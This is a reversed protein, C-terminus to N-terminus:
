LLKELAHVLRDVDQADNYPGISVRLLRSGNWEYVPVEVKFEEYLRRMLEPADGAPLEFARMFPAAVGAVRRLGVAVLRREVEDALERASDLAFTAHVDIAKPLALYASLDLTGAWGHLEAFDAGDHYGWSIVLPAIWTQHEPRAWLFGSGKPASLWKHCDGAYVDAGLASLDLKLQGPAHAGDVISLVGASRAAACIEEVPLVLATPSTIHSVFVARTRPGIRASLEEPPCLVLNAGAFSWTNVIAGYEHATTLVEGDPRSGLSRIVANLGSTANRVFVLDDTRAGVFGALAARAATLLGPGEETDDPSDELRRTFFDTPGRELEAQLRQYEDFVERSCAGYGGHNLYAIDPDLLFGERVAPTKWAICEVRRPQSGGIAFRIAPRPALISFM